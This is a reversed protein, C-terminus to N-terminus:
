QGIGSQPVNGWVDKAPTKEGGGGIPVEPSPSDENMAAALARDYDAQATTTDLRKAKEWALKLACVMLAHNLCVVDTAAAPADLSPDPQGHPKVWFWTRYEFAITEVAVPTPTFSLNGGQFRAWPQLTGAITVAKAYQWLEANIPGGMQFRTTRNWGSQDVMERFDAPLPYIAQGNVTQFTHEKTLHSWGRERVVSRGASKLMALLQIINPDVSAFPDDVPALILGEEIAADSVIEAVTQWSLLAGDAGGVFAQGGLLAM